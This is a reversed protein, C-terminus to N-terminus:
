YNSYKGTSTNYFRGGDVKKVCIPIVIEGTKDATVVGSNSSFDKIKLLGDKIGDRSYGSNGTAVQVMKVMDYGLESFFGPYENYKKQFKEVYEQPAGDTCFATFYIGEMNGKAKELNEKTAVIGLSLIKGSMGLEKIQKLASLIQYDLGIIYIADYDQQKLRILQTRYDLNGYQFSEAALILGNYKTVEDQFVNRYDLSYEDLVYLIVFKKLGLDESAYRALVPADVDANTFYRFVYDGLAPLGASSSITLFLPIKDRDALPALATVGGSAAIVVDLEDDLTLKQYATVMEKANDKSDEFVFEAQSFEEGALLAGMMLGEGMFAANGTFPAIIGIKVERPNTITSKSGSLIYGVLVFVIIIILLLIIKSPKTM